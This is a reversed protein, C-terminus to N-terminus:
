VSCITPLTLHTYSVAQASQALLEQKTPEGPSYVYMINGSGAPSEWEDPEGKANVYVRLCQAQGVLELQKYGGLCSVKCQVIVGPLPPVDIVWRKREDM